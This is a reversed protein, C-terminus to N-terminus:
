PKDGTWRNDNDIETSDDPIYRLLEVCGPVSNHPIKEKSLFSNRFCLTYAAWQMRQKKRCGKFKILNCFYIM